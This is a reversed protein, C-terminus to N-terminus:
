RSAEMSPNLAAAGRTVLVGVMDRRYTDTGRNDTIPRCAAAALDGAKRCTVPTAGEADLLAEADAVRMPVPAVAALAIRHRAHGGQEARAVVVGLTALDMGLRRSMRQYSGRWAAASAPLFVGLVLDLPLLTTKGPGQFFQTIPLNRVGAPSQAVVEADLCLLAVATDAAPSANCLNGAMTARNRLPYAGVTLCCDALLPFRKGLQSAITALTVTAGVFVSGDPREEIRSLEPIGKIDIFLPTQRRGERVQPILDTGGALFRAEPHAQKLALAEAVTKAMRYDVHPLPM